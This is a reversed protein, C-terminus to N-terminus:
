SSRGPGHERFCAYAIQGFSVGGDNAPVLQHIIPIFNKQQLKDFANELIIANQFVGGSMAVMSIGTTQRIIESTMIIIDVITNHFKRAITERAVKATIDELVNRIIIRQDIIGGEIHFPYSSTEPSSLALQELAIAAQAHYSVSHHINLLSSIGDFLRGMSTTRPSNIKKQIMHLYFEREREDIPSFRTSKVEEGIVEYLLSFATRGPELVAKDGGPLRYPHLHFLREFGDYSAVFVEGGWVTKDPGYGTGDFAFGIVKDNGSVDNEAMCSLIHAFHHQVKILRDKYNREGFRTSYYGPHIDSVVVSPEVDLLRLLDGVIEEYFEQARPTDLDGVHQSLFVENDLGVAITNNMYPGLALVPKQITFPVALSLPAFGRSRRVPVQRGAMIRVVSDDCRRVIERNYSLIYDSIGSLRTFADHEDKVIPEESMNASTAIVPRSFTQMIIHHLPTYPLFVGVTHNDPSVSDALSSTEKLRVIVIPRETSQVSREELNTLLAETKISDLDPFMVAMPKEERHKRQRLRDVADRNTADCLLHYGGLGKLAIIEGKRISDVAKELAEGNECITKGAPDSLRVLPGCAHCANPQAHFRRDSPNRYEKECEQCMAFTKMSTNNRDYPLKELITFRPGCNTCNTFPYLHRRDEPNRIDNLCEKCVAIDPLIFPKKDGTNLSKKIEFGKLGANELFTHQLSYINALPPKEREIRILFEDLVGKEGEVEICVGTSSNLVYGALGLINALRYVFPRFGVGQVLGTINIRLRV